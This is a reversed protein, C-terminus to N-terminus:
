RRRWGSPPTSRRGSVLTRRRRRGCRAARRCTPAPRYDETTSWEGIGRQLLYRVAEDSRKFLANFWEMPPVGTTQDFTVGAAPIDPFSQLEGPKAGSAFVLEDPRTYQTM